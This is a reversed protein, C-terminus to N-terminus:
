RLMGGIDAGPTTGHALAWAVGAILAMGLMSRLVRELVEGRSQMKASM